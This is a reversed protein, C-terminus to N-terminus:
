HRWNSARSCSERIPQMDPLWSCKRFQAALTQCFAQIRSCAFRFTVAGPSALGFPHPAVLKGAQGQGQQQVEAALGIDHMDDMGALFWELGIHSTAFDREVNLVTTLLESGKLVM